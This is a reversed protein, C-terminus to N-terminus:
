WSETPGVNRGNRRFNGTERREAHHHLGRSMLLLKLTSFIAMLAGTVMNADGSRAGGDFFDGFTDGSRYFPFFM